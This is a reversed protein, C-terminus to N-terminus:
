VSQKQTKVKKDFPPFFIKTGPVLNRFDNLNNARAVEFYYKYDGYIKYAMAPLTDGEKVIRVHTLDPSAPQGGSESEEDPVYQKFTVNLIARLPTGDQNFLKYNVSVSTVSGFFVEPDFRLFHLKGWIVEVYRPRHSDSNYGCVSYFENLKQAVTMDSGDSGKLKGAAQTGDLYFKLTLEVPNTGLFNGTTTTKGAAPQDDFRSTYNITLEDPNIFATFVKPSGTRSINDYGNIKIRKLEGSNLFDFM